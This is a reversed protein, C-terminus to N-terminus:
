YPIKIECYKKVKELANKGLIDRIDPNELLYDMKEALEKSNKPKVLLGVNEAILEPIGGVNSAIVPKGCAMAELLVIGFSESISPLVLFESDPILYEIDTRSGLFHISNIDKSLNKLNDYLPGDGVIVLECDSKMLKKAKILYEVGKQSVLNGIFLIVPKTIGTEKKLIGKNNPKFRTLDVSNYTIQIKNEISVDTINLVEKKIADSVVFVSLANQLISKFLPQLIKNKYLIFIDSGHLTVCYPVKTIKSTLLAILGPPSLFHAHILDINNNKVINILKLTGNFAFLLGRLGKINITKATEVHINGINEVNDIPYTLVYVEDNNEILKKSLEYVYTSIGGIHPPFKGVMIIKM